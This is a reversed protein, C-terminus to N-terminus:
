IFTNRLLAHIHIWKIMFFSQISKNLLSANLKDFTVTFANIISCFIEIEFLHQKYKKLSDQFIYQPKWFYLCCFSWTVSFFPTIISFICSQMVPIFEINYYIWIYAAIKLQLLIVTKLKIFFAKTRLPFSLTWPKFHVALSLRLSTCHDRSWPQQTICWPWSSTWILVTAKTLCPPWPNNPPWTRDTLLWAFPFTM